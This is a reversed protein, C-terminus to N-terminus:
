GSGVQFKNNWLSTKLFIGGLLRRKEIHKDSKKELCSLQGKLTFRLFGFIENKWWFTPQKQHSPPDAWIETGKSCALTCICVHEMRKTNKTAFFFFMVYKQFNWM